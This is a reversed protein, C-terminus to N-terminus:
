TALGNQRRGGFDIGLHDILHDLRYEVVNLAKLTQVRRELVELRLVHDLDAESRWQMFAGLTVVLFTAPQLPWPGSPTRRRAQNGEFVRTGSPRPNQRIREEVPRVGHM